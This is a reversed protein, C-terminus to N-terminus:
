STELLKRVFAAARELENDHSNGLADAAEKLGERRGEARGQELADREIAQVFGVVMGRRADGTHEECAAIILQALSETAMQEKTRM